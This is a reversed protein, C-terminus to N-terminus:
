TTASRRRRRGVAFAGGVVLPAGLALVLWGENGARQPDGSLAAVGNPAARLAADIEGATLRRAFVRVAALRVTKSDQNYYRDAEVGGKPGLQVLTTTPAHGPLSLTLAWAGEAPWQQDVAYVGRSGVSRLTVPISRRENNVLGEAVAEVPTDTPAGCSYVHVLMAAGRAAHNQPDVPAEVSIWPPGGALAATSSLCLIATGAARRLM